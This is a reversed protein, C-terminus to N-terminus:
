NIVIAKIKYTFLCHVYLKTEECVTLKQKHVFLKIAPTQFYHDSGPLKKLFYHIFPLKIIDYKIEGCFRYPVPQYPIYGTFSGASTGGKKESFFSGYMPTKRIYRPIHQDSDRIYESDRRKLPVLKIVTFLHGCFRSKTEAGNMKM